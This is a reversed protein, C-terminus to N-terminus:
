GGTQFYKIGIEQHPSCFKGSRAGLHKSFMSNSFDRKLNSSVWSSPSREKGSQLMKHLCKWAVEYPNRYPKGVFKNQTQISEM